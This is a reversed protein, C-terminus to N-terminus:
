KGPCKSIGSCNLGNIQNNLLYCIGGFIFLGYYGKSKAQSICRDIDSKSWIEDGQKYGATGWTLKKAGSTLNNVLTQMTTNSDPCHWYDQAQFGLNPNDNIAQYFSTTNVTERNPYDNIHVEWDSRLAAWKKAIVSLHPGMYYNTCAQHNVHALRDHQDCKAESVSINKNPLICDNNPCDSDRKCHKPNTSTRCVGQGDDNDDWYEADYVIGKVYMPDFFNIIINYLDKFYSANMANAYYKYLEGGIFNPTTVVLKGREIAKSTIENCLKSFYALEVDNNKAAVRGDMDWNLDLSPSLCNYTSIITDILKNRDCSELIEKSGLRFWCIKYFGPNIESDPPCNPGACTNRGFPTFSIQLKTPICQNECNPDTYRGDIKEVCVNNVCDYRKTVVCHGGCNKDIYIGKASPVCKGNICAYRKKKPKLAWILLLVLAVVVIFVIVIILIYLTKRNM